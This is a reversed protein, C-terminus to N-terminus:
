DNCQGTKGPKRTTIRSRTGQESCCARLAVFGVALLRQESGSPQMKSAGVEQSASKSRPGRESLATDKPRCASNVALVAERKCPWGAQVLPTQSPLNLPLKSVRSCM